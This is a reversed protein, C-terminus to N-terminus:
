PLKRVGLLMKFFMLISRSFLNRKNKLLVVALEGLLFEMRLRNAESPDLEMLAPYREAYFFAKISDFFRPYVFSGSDSSRLSNGVRYLVTDKEFYYLRVGKKTLRLWYPWDELYPYTEPIPNALVFDRKLFATVVPVFNNYLLKHYQEEASLAFFQEIDNGVLYEDTVVSEGEVTKMIRAMSFAVNVEQLSRIFGVNDSICNPSLLDDGAVPKIWEGTAYSFAMNDNKGVGGNKEAVILNTNIFREEHEDIWGRCLEVTNDKSCDDSVILELRPYTQSYISDLTEIVTKASNYAIVCVSVLPTDTEPMDIIAKNYSEM